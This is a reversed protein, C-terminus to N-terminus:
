KKMQGIEFLEGTSYKKKKEQAKNNSQYNKKLHIFVIFTLSILLLNVVFSNFLYLQKKLQLDNRIVLGRTRERERETDERKRKKEPSM